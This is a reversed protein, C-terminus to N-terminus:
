WYSRRLHVVIASALDAEDRMHRNHKSCSEYRASTGMTAVGCRL